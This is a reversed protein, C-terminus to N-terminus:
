INDKRVATRFITARHRNSFIPNLRTGAMEINKLDARPAGILALPVVPAIM